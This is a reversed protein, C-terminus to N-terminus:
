SARGWPSRELPPLNAYNALMEDMQPKTLVHPEGVQLALHYIRAEWEVQAALDYTAPVSSGLAVIGHNALLFARAGPLRRLLALAARGVAATSPPAFDTVEVRPAGVFLGENCVLPIPHRAVSFAAAYPSHTHVIADLGPYRALIAIHLPLESTPRHEGRVLRGQPDVIAIDAATMADYPRGAPTVAILGSAPDRGSINGATAVALGDPVLRRAARAVAEALAEVADPIVPEDRGAM